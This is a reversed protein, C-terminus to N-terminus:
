PAPPLRRERETEGKNKSRQPRVGRETKSTTRLRTTERTRPRQERLHWRQHPRALNQLSPATTPTPAQERLRSKPSRLHDTLSSTSVDVRPPPKAVGTASKPPPRTSSEIQLQAAATHNPKEEEADQSLRVREPTPENLKSTDRHRLPRRHSRRPPAELEREKAIRKGASAELNMM